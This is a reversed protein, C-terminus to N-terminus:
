VAFGYVLRPTVPSIFNIFQFLFIGAKRESIVESLSLAGIARTSTSTKIFPYHIRLITLLLFQSQFSLFGDLDSGVTIFNWFSGRFIFSSRLAMLPM